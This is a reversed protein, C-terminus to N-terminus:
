HLICASSHIAFEGLHSTIAAMARLHRATHGSELRDGDAANLAQKANKCPCKDSVTPYIEPSLLRPRFKATLVEPVAWISM